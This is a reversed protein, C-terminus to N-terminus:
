DDVFLHMISALFNIRFFVRVNLLQLSEREGKVSEIRCEVDMNGPLKAEFLQKFTEVPCM